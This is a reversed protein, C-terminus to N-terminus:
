RISDVIIKGNCVTHYIKSKYKKEDISYNHKISIIVKKNKVSNLKAFCFNSITRCFIVKFSLETSTM